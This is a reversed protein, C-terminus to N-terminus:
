EKLEYKRYPLSIFRYFLQCHELVYGEPVERWSSLIENLDLHVTRLEDGQIITQSSHDYIGRGRAFLTENVFHRVIKTFTCEGIVRMAPTDIVTDVFTHSGAGLETVNGNYWEYFHKIFNNTQNNSISILEEQFLHNKEAESAAIQHLPHTASREIKFSVHSPREIDHFTVHVPLYVQSRLTPDATDIVSVLQVRGDKKARRVAGGTFGSDSVLIGKAAGVDNIKGILEDVKGIEVPRKYDKCEVIVLVEYGVVLTRLAVDIQRLQGSQGQIFENETVNAVGAFERHINAVVKEFQKGPKDTRSTCRKRM